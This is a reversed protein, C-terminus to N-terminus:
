RARVLCAASVDEEVRDRVLGTGILLGLAQRPRYTKSLNPNLVAHGLFAAIGADCQRQHSVRIWYPNCRLVTVRHCHHHSTSETQPDLSFRAAALREKVGGRSCFVAIQAHVLWPYIVFVFFGNYFL